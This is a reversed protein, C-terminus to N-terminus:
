GARAYCELLVRTSGPNIVIVPDVIVRDEDGYVIRDGPQVSAGAEVLLKDDGIAIGSDALTRTITAAKLARATTTTVTGTAPHTRTLTALLGFREILRATRAAARAYDVGSV